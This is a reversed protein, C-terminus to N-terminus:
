AKSGLPSSFDKLRKGTAHLHHCPCHPHLAVAHEQVALLSVSHRLVPQATDSNTSYVFSEQTEVAFRVKKLVHVFVYVCEYKFYEVEYM